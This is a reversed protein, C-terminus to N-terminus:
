SSVGGNILKNIDDETLPCDFSFSNSITPSITAVIIHLGLTIKYNVKVNTNGVCKAALDTLVAQGPDNAIKYQLAFPFTFNTQQNARINIDNKQGSGIPTNNIPYFIELKLKKLSVSFFNPNEVTIPVGLNLEIGTGNITYKKL